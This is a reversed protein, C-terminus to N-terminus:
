RKITVKSAAAQNMHRLASHKRGYTFYIAFGIILWVFLRLWNEGPLSFMLLLCIAIGAIPVFPFLPARFPRPLEPNTRRMILVAACVIVFALLTGINVLESLIRLPLLSAQVAVFLGTLITAKWPTRFKEHIAGFFSPPILRDRAMALMVRPQSLMLVLLVSTIGTLAGLSILFQAWRLGVQAFANSVPADINIKDYPVMGTLVASVAIYLVTCIILSSIIGIPVDRRPNRAEEAHTSVSDFGIYAFFITAAGALMGLPEGGIGTQGFITKGFFSVGTLGYPAFPHWNRPDIYFVGVGIVMLVVVLKVAVMFANFSASERIGKVLIATVIATIVLAPFDIIRGTPGYTGIAPDLDFPTNALAFPLHIGFIGIFDQFYHSWGHAVAASAVAYELVLDWGVIWAFLEGLTAYAYTYASGAVPVMSAFEAYCLAAFICALGSVVFSVMLAPGTKDHAAVGTLVFIGTGIIAGIGLSSLQVPGLIRRLRNEGEMEELLLKVPKKAFLPNSM